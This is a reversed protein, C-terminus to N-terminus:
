VGAAHLSQGGAQHGLIFLLMNGGAIGYNGGRIDARSWYLRFLLWLIMLLWSIAGITM